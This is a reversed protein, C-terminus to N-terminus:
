LMCKPCLDVNKLFCDLGVLKQIIGCQQLLVDHEKRKGESTFMTIGEKLSVDYMSSLRAMSVLFM